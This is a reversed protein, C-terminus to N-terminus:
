AAACSIRNGVSPINNQGASRRAYLWLTEGGRQELLHDSRKQRSCHQRRQDFGAPAGTRRATTRPTQARAFRCHRNSLAPRWEQDDLHDAYKSTAGPDGRRKESEVAVGDEGTATVHPLLAPTAHVFGLGRCLVRVPTRNISRETRG